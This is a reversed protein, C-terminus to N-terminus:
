NYVCLVLDTQGDIWRIGENPLENLSCYFPFFFLFMIQKM